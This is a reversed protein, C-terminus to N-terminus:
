YKKTAKFKYIYPMKVFTNFNQANFHPNYESRGKVTDLHTDIADLYIWTHIPKNEQIGSFMFSHTVKKCKLISSCLIAADVCNGKGEKILREPTRYTQEFNDAEYTFSLGVFLFVDEISTIDKAINKIVPSKSFDSSIKDMLLASGKWGQINVKERRM